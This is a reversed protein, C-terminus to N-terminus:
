ATLRRLPIFSRRGSPTRPGVAGEARLAQLVMHATLRAGAVVLRDGGAPDVEGRAVQKEMRAAVDILRADRDRAAARIADNFPRLVDDWHEIAEHAPYPLWVGTLLLPVVSATESEHLVRDLLGTFESLELTQCDDVAFGLTVYSAGSSLARDIWAKDFADKITSGAHGLNLVPIGLQRGIREPWSDPSKSPLGDIATSSGGLTVLEPHRARGTPKPVYPDGRRHHAAVIAGYRPTPCRGLGCRLGALPHVLDRSSRGRKAPIVGDHGPM